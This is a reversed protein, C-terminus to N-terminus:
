QLGSLKDLDPTKCGAGTISLVILADEPFQAVVQELAPWVTASTPEALIGRRALQHLGQIIDAEEVVTITGQSKRIADLITKARPPSAVRIGEALTHGESQSPIPGNSNHFRVWLPACAKAQVGILKPHHSALGATLLDTFGRALGLLQTGNGVPLIVVDPARRGLQEWIEYAITKNALIVYPNYVHSAYYSTGMESAQRAAQSAASRPGPVKELHAGYLVIQALKIPSATEPVFISTEIGAQAAYAALAAGANGSSDEHVRQIGRAKLVSALLSAGRDKFSGTPNLSELKLWITRGMFHTQILPTWGEGLSVPVIGPPTLMAQYRWLSTVDHKIAHQDFTPTCTFELPSGCNCEIQNTDLPYTQGCNPCGLTFGGLGALENNRRVDTPTPHYYGEVWFSGEPGVEKKWVPVIEKLRNIGYRTAEFCGDDRHRSSCAVIVTTDGVQLRGIRQVIAIGLVKPFRERIESAIQHLMKEAMPQYAEYLLYETEFQNASNFTVGRVTGNFFCVAGTEPTTIANILTGLDPLNPTIAFYEPFDSKGLGGSVPPFLAIKDGDHIPDEPFAYQDNLAVLASPLSTQLSPFYESLHALLIAVTAPEPLEVSIQEIGAQERLTAFLHVVVQM